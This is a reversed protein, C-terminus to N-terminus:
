HRTARPGGTLILEVLLLLFLILRAVLFVGDGSEEVAMKRARATATELAKCAPRTFKKRWPPGVELAAAHAADKRSEAFKTMMARVLGAFFM